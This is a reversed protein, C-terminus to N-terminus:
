ASLMNYILKLAEGRTFAGNPSFKGSSGTMMGSADAIAIYGLYKNTDKVDSFKNNFLSTMKAIEGGYRGSVAIYAAQQRTLKADDEIDKAAYYLGVSSLLNKFDLSTITESENLNGKSDMLVIGYKRLKEAYAKYKSNDIDSYEGTQQYKTYEGGNYDTPKGTFADIFLNRDAAYVLATVVKKTDTKYACRYKLSIGEEKFFSKYAKNKSIIGDPKPYEIKDNYSNNYNTVYGNNSITLNVQENACKIKNEVRYASYQKSIIRPEGIPAGTKSDYKSYVKNDYTCTLGDFHKEWKEGLLKKMIDDAKADYTKADMNSKNDPAYCYFSLVEGNEANYTFYGYVDYDTSITIGGEYVVADDNLDVYKSSQATFSVDRVYAAYRENYYTSQYDVASATPIYFIGLAKLDSLEKDAKILKNENELKEKEAQSFTVAGNDGGTAPNEEADEDAVTMNDGTETNVYSKYDDFTSLKGTFANIQGSETQRYILHPTYTKTEWDYESTYVLETPFLKKYASQADSMQIVGDTGSFTAGNVWNISYSMLEGTNKNVTVSGTQNTVPIGNATRHFRLTATDGWLSISFKDEDIAINSYITPNLQKIYKKAAAKLKSESLKAFSAGWYNKDVVVDDDNNKYNSYSKIVKGTISVSIQGYESGAPDSWTFTYRTAGNESGTRYNFDSLKEPINIRQKVYTLATKMAADEEAYAYIGVSSASLAAALVAAGARKFKM